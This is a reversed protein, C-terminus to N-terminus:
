GEAPCLVELLIDLVRHVGVAVAVGRPFFLSLPHVSQLLRQEPSM